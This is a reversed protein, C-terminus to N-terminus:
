PPCATVSTIWADILATGDADVVRTGLPPMRRADLTHMRLSVV